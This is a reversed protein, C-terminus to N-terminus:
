SNVNKEVVKIHISLTKDTWYTSKASNTGMTYSEEFDQEVLIEHAKRNRKLNDLQCHLWKQTFCHIGHTLPKLSIRIAEILDGVTKETQFLITM